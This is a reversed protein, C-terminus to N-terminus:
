VEVFCDYEQTLKHIVVYKLHLGNRVTELINVWTEAVADNLKEATEANDLINRMM